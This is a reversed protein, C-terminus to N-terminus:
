PPFTLTFNSNAPLPIPTKLTVNVQKTTYVTFANPTLTPILTTITTYTANFAPSASEVVSSAVSSNYYSSFSFTYLQPLLPNVVNSLTLQFRSNPLINTATSIKISLINTTNSCTVVTPPSGNITLSCTAISIDIDSPFGIKIASTTSLTQSIEFDFVYNTNAHAM